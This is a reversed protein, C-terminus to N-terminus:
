IRIYKGEFLRYRRYNTDEKGTKYKPPPQSVPSNADRTLQLVLTVKREPWKLECTNMLMRMKQQEVNDVSPCLHNRSPGRGRFICGTVSTICIDWIATLNNRPWRKHFKLEELTTASDESLM